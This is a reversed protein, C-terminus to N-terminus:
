CVDKLWFMSREELNNFTRNLMPLVASESLIAFNDFMGRLLMPSMWTGQRTIALEQFLKAVSLSCNGWAKYSMRLWIFQNYMQQRRKWYNWTGIDAICRHLTDDIIRTNHYAAQHTKSHSRTSLLYWSLLALADSSANVAHSWIWNWLDCSLEIGYQRSHAATSQMALCKKWFQLECISFVVSVAQGILYLHWLRSTVM